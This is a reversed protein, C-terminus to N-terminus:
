GVLVYNVDLTGNASPPPPPIIPTYYGNVVVAETGIAINRESPSFYGSLPTWSVRYNGKSLTTNGNASITTVKHTFLNEVIASGGTTLYVMTLIGSHALYTATYVVDEDDSAFLTLSKNAPTTYGTIEMFQISVIKTGYEEQSVQVVEGSIHWNDNEGIRWRGKEVADMGDEDDTLTICVNSTKPEMYERSLTVDNFFNIEVTESAPALLEGVEAYLIELELSELSGRAIVLVDGSSLWTTGGDLRWKGQGLNLEDTFTISFNINDKPEGFYEVPVMNRDYLIGVMSAVLGIDGSIKISTSAEYREKVNERRGTELISFDRYTEESVLDIFTISNGNSGGSVSKTFAIFTHDAPVVYLVDELSDTREKSITRIYKDTFNSM